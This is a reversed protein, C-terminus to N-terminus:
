HIYIEFRFVSHGKGEREIYSKLENLGILVLSVLSVLAFCFLEMPLKGTIANLGTPIRAPRILDGIVVLTSTDKNLFASTRGSHRYVNFLPSPLRMLSSALSM